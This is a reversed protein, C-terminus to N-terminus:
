LGLDYLVVLYLLVVGCDCYLNCITCRMAFRLILERLQPQHLPLLLQTKPKRVVVEELGPDLPIPTSISKILEPVEKMKERLARRAEAKSRETARVEIDPWAGQM